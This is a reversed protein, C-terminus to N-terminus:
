VLKFQMFAPNHDSYMFETNINRIYNVEVNKSVLFGDITVTYNVLEGNDFTWPIESSRCTATMEGNKDVTSSAFDFNGKFLTTLDEASIQAVWDPVEMKTPFTHISNAIDHNWDGGAIVYNGAEYETNVFDALMQLQKARYVGGEDYASMHLNILVLKKDSDAIPMYNVSFCRDLDFFKNPFSLDVPFSRRVASEIQYKSLTAIGANVSGHPETLPYCLYGSHFNVAFTDGYGSFANTIMEYQNVKYSRTSKTDVEQFLMIDPTTPQYEKITTIAGNTNKLVEDKSKAVSHLGTLTAGQMYDKKYTGTDMFFSYDQSYAGFGINYTSISYQTGIALTNSQPTNIALTQNDPIRYFQISLYAIYGGVILVITLIVCLLSIGVIKFAKKTNIM